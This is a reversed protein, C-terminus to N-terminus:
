KMWLSLLKKLKRLANRRVQNIYQRSFGLREALEAGSLEEGSLYLAEIVAKECPKLFKFAKMLMAKEEQKVVLRELDQNDDALLEEGNNEGEDTLMSEISLFSIDLEEQMKRLYDERNLEQKRQQYVDYSVEIGIRNEREDKWIYFYRGKGVDSALFKKVESGKLVKYTKTGDSSKITGSPDVVYFIKM